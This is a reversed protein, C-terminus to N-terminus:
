LVIFPDNGGLELVSKKLHKGASQAIRSGTKSSGTFHVGCINSNSM